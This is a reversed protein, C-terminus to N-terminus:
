PAEHMLAMVELALEHRLLTVTATVDLTVLAEITAIATHGQLWVSLEYGVAGGLHIGLLASKCPVVVYVDGEPTTDYDVFELSLGDSRGTREIFIQDVRRLVRTIRYGRTIWYEESSRETQIPGRPVASVVTPAPRGRFIGCATISLFDRRDM